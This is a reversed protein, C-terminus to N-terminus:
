EFRIKDRNSEIYQVSQEFYKLMSKNLFKKWDTNENRYVSLWAMAYAVVQEPLYGKRSMQWGSGKLNSFTSFNFRTNGIFIGFGYAVALLDTLYEDNELIWGEYLLIYHSLEHSMTAILELPNKLQEKEISIIIEEGKSQYTGTAGIWTGQMNDSPTSLLTGDAMEIPSNSFFELKIGEHPIDMYIKTQELIFWADDETGDFEKDYFRKTPLITEINKYYDVETFISKIALLKDEVWERDEPTVPLKNKKNWFM